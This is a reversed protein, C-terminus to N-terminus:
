SNLYNLVDSVTGEVLTDFVGKDNKGALEALGTHGSKPTFWYIVDGSEIDCISFSDYLPGVMPCNNKFFVYTKELGLAQIRKTKAFKKVKGGLRKTKGLLATEKCFWDYWATDSCKEIDGANFTDIWQKVSMESATSM